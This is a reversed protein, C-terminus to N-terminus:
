LRAHRFVLLIRAQPLPRLDIPSTEAPRYQPRPRTDDGAEHYVFFGSAGPLVVLELSVGAHALQSGVVDIDEAGVFGAAAVSAGMSAFYAGTRPETNPEGSGSRM